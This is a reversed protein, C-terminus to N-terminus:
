FPVDVEMLTACREKLLARLVMPVFPVGSHSGPSTTGNTLPGLHYYHPHHGRPTSFVEWGCPSPSVLTLGLANPPEHRRSELISLFVEISPTLLFNHPKSHSLVQPCHRTNLTSHHPVAFGLSHRRPTRFRQIPM